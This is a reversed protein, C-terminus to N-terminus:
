QVIFGGTGSQVTVTATASQTSDSQSVAIIHFTGAGPPATYTASGDSNTVLTGGAAGEQISWTVPQSATFTQQAGPAVTASTPNVFVGAVVQVQAPMSTLGQASITVTATGLKLGKLQTNNNVAQVVDQGDTVVFSIQSAPVAVYNGDKDRLIADLARTQGIILSQNPVLAISAVPTNSALGFQNNGAKLTVPVNSSSIVDGSADPGSYFRSSLTTVIPRLPGLPHGDAPVPFMGGNTPNINQTYTFDSGNLNAKAIALQVSKPQPAPMPAVTATFTVTAAVLGTPPGLDGGCGSLLLGSFLVMILLLVGALCRM